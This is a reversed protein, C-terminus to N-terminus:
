HKGLNGWLGGYMGHHAVEQPDKFFTGYTTIGRRDYFDRIEGMVVRRGARVNEELQPIPIGNKYYPLGDHSIAIEGLGNGAGTGTGNGAQNGAGFGTGNGAGFGNGTGNGAQNGACNGAGFQDGLTNNPNGFGQGTGNGNGFGDGMTGNGACNGCQNGAGFGDGMTNNPNGFGEGTANGAGFGNGMTGNANNAGETGALTPDMKFNQGRLTKNYQESDNAPNPKYFGSTSTKYGPEHEIVTHYYYKSYNTEDATYPKFTRNYM